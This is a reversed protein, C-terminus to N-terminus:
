LFDPIVTTVKSSLPMTTTKTSIQTATTTSPKGTTPSRITTSPQTTGITSPSIYVPGQLTTTEPQKVKANVNKNDVSKVFKGERYLQDLPVEELIVGDGDFDQDIESTMMSDEEAMTTTLPKVTTTETTPLPTTTTTTTSTVNSNSNANGKPVKKRKGNKKRGHKKGNTEISDEKGNKSNKSSKKIKVPAPIIIREESGPVKFSFQILKRHSNKDRKKNNNENRNEDDDAVVLIPTPGDKEIDGGNTNNDHKNHNRNDEDSDSGVVSSSKSDGSNDIDGVSSDLIDEFNSPLTEKSNDLTRASSAAEAAKPINTSGSAMIMVTAAPSPTVQGGTQVGSVPHPPPIPAPTSLVTGPPVAQIIIHRMVQQGNGDVTGVPTGSPMSSSPIIMVPPSAHPPSSVPFPHVVPIMQVVEFEKPYKKPHPKPPDDYDRERNRNKGGEYSSDRYYDSSPRNSLDFTLRPRSARM